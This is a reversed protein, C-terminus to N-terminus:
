IVGGRKCYCEYIVHDDVMDLDEPEYHKCLTDAVGCIAQINETAVLKILTAVEWARSNYKQNNM